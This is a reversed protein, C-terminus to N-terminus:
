ITNSKPRLNEDLNFDRLAEERIQDLLRIQNETLGATKGALLYWRARILDILKTSEYGPARVVRATMTKPGLARDEILILAWRKAGADAIEWTYRM